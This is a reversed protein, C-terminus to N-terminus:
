HSHTAGHKLADAKIVFSNKTAYETEPELGGTIQIHNGDQLGMEIMRVEFTDGYRAFVVPMGRFSQLASTKVALKVPTESLLVKAKVHMGPRWHGKTNSLSARLRAIHGETMTPSIYDLHTTATLQEDITFIETNLGTKLRSLQKPFASLEIWVKSYDVIKILPSQQVIEGPNVWRQTIEGASESNLHYTQLTKMNKLTAIRQGKKVKDGLQVYLKEVKSPYPAYIKVSQNQPSSIIGYLEIQERITQPGARETEINAQQIMRENMESRGEHTEYQWQFFQGQYSVQVNVGYSHPETIIKNGLLYSEEPQFSIQDEKGGLRNLVVFADLDQPQIPQNKYYGYLRMEPPVGTEFINIELSFDGDTLLKGGHPAEVQTPHHDHGHEDHNHNEEESHNKHSTTDHHNSHNADVEHDHQGFLHGGSMAFIPSSILLGILLISHKYTM